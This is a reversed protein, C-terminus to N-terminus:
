RLRRVQRKWEHEPPMPLVVGPSRDSVTEIRIPHVKQKRGIRCSICWFRTRAAALRDDWRRQQFLWWLGHPDFTLAHGCRCVPRIACHLAAADTISSPVMVGHENWKPM